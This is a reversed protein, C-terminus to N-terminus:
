LAFFGGSADHRFVLTWGGGDSTMDCYVQYANSTAGGDPDIWYIGNGVAYGNDLISKCSLGPSIQAQGNSNSIHLVGIGNNGWQTNSIGGNSVVVDFINVSGTTINLEIKSPSLINISNINGDFGPITVISDQTFNSGILTVTLTSSIPLSITANSLYPTPHYRQAIWQTGNYYYLQNDTTNYVMMGVTPSINNMETQTGTDLKFVLDNEFAETNMINLCFFMIIFSIKKLIHTM